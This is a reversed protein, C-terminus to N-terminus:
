HKNQLILIIARGWVGWESERPIIRKGSGGASGWMKQGSAPGGTDPKEINNFQSTSEALAERRTHLHPESKGLTSMATTSYSVRMTTTQEM